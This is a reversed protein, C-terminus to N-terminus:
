RAAARMASVPLRWLLSMLPFARRTRWNFAWPAMGVLRDPPPSILTMLAAKRASRSISSPMSALWAEARPLAIL